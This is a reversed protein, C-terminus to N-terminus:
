SGFNAARPTSSASRPPAPLRLRGPDWKVALQTGDPSYSPAYYNADDPTLRNPEGGEAPVVYVDSSSSSTGTRTAPRPSRSARGTRRGPRARTRSTARPSRRRRPPDTPRSSTSTAPAPRGDLRRLRAQLAAEHVPAAGAEQRGGGRVGRASAASFALRTGDPSWLPEGVDDKLETLCHAEGGGMPM